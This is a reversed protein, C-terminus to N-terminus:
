LGYVYQYTNSSINKGDSMRRVVKTSLIIVYFVASARVSRIGDDM